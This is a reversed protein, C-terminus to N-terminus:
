ATAESRLRRRWSRKVRGLLGASQAARRANQHLRLILHRLLSVKLGRLTAAFVIVDHELWSENGFRAKYDADGWGFDVVDVDPDECLDRFMRLQVYTGVGYRAFEPKYGATNLYFTRDRATGQWFAVPSGDISLLWARFEGRELGLRVLARREPTDAFGANLGRQYASSAVDDLARVIREFSDVGTLLDLDLRGEFADELQASQRKLNYRSKRDRGALLEDYTKPLALRRHNSPEGPHRRFPSPVHSLAEDLPTGVRVAPVIYVDAVGDALARELELVFTDALARDSVGSVGGHSIRLARLTPRYVTAYGFRCPFPAKEIRGVGLATPTGDRELLVVHPREVEPRTRILALFHDLEADAYSVGVSDWVDALAELEAESRMVRTRIGDRPLAQGQNM